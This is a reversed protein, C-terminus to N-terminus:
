ITSKGSPVGYSKKTQQHKLFSLQVHILEKRIVEPSLKKYQLAVRYELHRIWAFGMFVIAIHATVRPPVL